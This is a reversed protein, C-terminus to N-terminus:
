TVQKAVLEPWVQMKYLVARVESSVLGDAPKQPSCTVMLMCGVCEFCTPRHHGHRGVNRDLM